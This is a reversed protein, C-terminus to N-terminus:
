LQTNLGEMAIAHGKKVGKLTSELKAADAHRFSQLANSSYCMPVISAVNFPLLFNGSHALKEQLDAVLVGKEALEKEQSSVAQILDEV